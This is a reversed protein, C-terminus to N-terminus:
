RSYKPLVAPGAPAATEADTRETMRSLLASGDRRTRNPIYRAYVRFLMEPSRHGLMAAVWSPAEGAALANSAFTHRTQYMTRRSLAATTLTPYALIAPTCRFCDTLTRSAAAPYTVTFNVIGNPNAHRFAYISQDDDGAVFLTASSKLALLRVFEQDCANLDQFEDVILHQMQPLHAAQIAGLQIRHVCEYIVEGPLVCCYLNRHTAHFVNFGAQEAPTIAPQAIAQPNLTQWQADHALRVQAARGPPCGLVQSLELDYIREREWDDLVFPDAPYLTTLVNATRLIRLALSHMTSLRIDPAVTACPEHACFDAVRRNLEACTARTFSIVYVRNPLTGNNLVHAVRREITASKGTGPGAVLRVQPSPDQAAHQQQYEAAAIQAPTIPM